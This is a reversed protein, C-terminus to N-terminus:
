SYRGIIELRLENWLEEDYPPEPWGEDLVEEEGELHVPYPTVYADLVAYQMNENNFDIAPAFWSSGPMGLAGGTEISSAYLGMRRVFENFQEEDLYGCYKAHHWGPALAEMESDWETRWWQKGQVGYARLVRNPSDVTYIVGFM